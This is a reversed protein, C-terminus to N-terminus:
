SLYVLLSPILGSTLLHPVLGVRCDRTRGIMIPLNIKSGSYIQTWIMINKMCKNNRGSQIGRFRVLRFSARIRAEWEAGTERLALQVHEMAAAQKAAAGEWWRSLRPPRRDLQQCGLGIGAGIPHDPDLIRSPKNAKM